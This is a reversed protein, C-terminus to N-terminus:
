SSHPMQPHLGIVLAKSWSGVKHAM